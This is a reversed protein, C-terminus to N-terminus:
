VLLKHQQMQTTMKKWTMVLWTFRTKLRHHFYTVGTTQTTNIFDAKKLDDSTL